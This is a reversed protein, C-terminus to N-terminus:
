KTKTYGDLRIKDIVFITKGSVNDTYKQLVAMGLTQGAPRVKTITSLRSPRISYMILLKRHTEKLTFLKCITIM